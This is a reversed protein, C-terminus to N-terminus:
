WYKLIFHVVIYYPLVALAVVFLITGLIGLGSFLSKM